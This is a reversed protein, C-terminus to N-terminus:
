RFIHWGRWVCMELLGGLISCLNAFFSALVHTDETLRDRAILGGLFTLLIGLAGVAVPAISVKLAAALGACAAFFVGFGICCGIVGLLGGLWVLASKRVPPQQPSQNSLASSQSTPPGPPETM